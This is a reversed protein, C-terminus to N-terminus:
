WLRPIPFLRVPPGMMILPGLTWKTYYFVSFIIIALNLIISLLRLSLRSWRKGALSAQAAKAAQRSAIRQQHRCEM